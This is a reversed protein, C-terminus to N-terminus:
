PCAAFLMDNSMLLDSLNSAGTAPSHAASRLEFGLSTENWVSSDLTVDMSYPDGTLGFGNRIMRDRQQYDAQADSSLEYGLVLWDTQAITDDLPSPLRFGIAFNSYAHLTSQDGLLQEVETRQDATLNRLPDGAGNRNLPNLRKCMTSGAVFATAPDFRADAFFERSTFLPLSLEKGAATDVITQVVPLHESLILVKQDALIATNLVALEAVQAWPAARDPQRSYIDIGNYIQHAFGYGIFHDVIPALDMDNRLKLVHATSLSPKAAAPLPYEDLTILAEWELDSFDWGWTPAHPQVNLPAYFAIPHYSNAARFLKQRESWPSWSTLSEVGEYAKIRTWNTFHLAPVYGAPVYALADEIAAPDPPPVATALATPLATPSVTPSVPTNFQTAPFGCAVLVAVVLTLWGLVTLRKL